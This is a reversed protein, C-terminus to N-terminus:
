AYRHGGQLQGLQTVRNPRAEDLPDATIPPADELAGGAGMLGISQMPCDAM